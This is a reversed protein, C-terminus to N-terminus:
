QRTAGEQVAKCYVSCHAGGSLVLPDSFASYRIVTCIVKLVARQQPDMQKVESASIRFFTADFGELGVVFGGCQVYCTAGGEGSDYFLQEDWRDSPVGCIPDMGMSLLHWFNARNNSGGPLLCADGTLVLVTTRQHSLSADLPAAM